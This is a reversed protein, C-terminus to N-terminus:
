RGPADPATPSQHSLIGWHQPPWYSILAKGIINKMPLPGWAHSDSSNNRNDGLVYVEDPGLTVPGADYSGMRPRYPEDLPQGDIFVQGRRVQVTEGPLGIVRKIFDRNPDRPFRFVVIDGRQPEGFRYALRSIILYQGNHLNPEMSDGDIRFNQAVTRILLFLVVTLVITELIEVVLAAGGGALRPAQAAASVEETPVPGPHRSDPVTPVGTSNADLESV